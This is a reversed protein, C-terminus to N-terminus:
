ENLLGIEAYLDKYNKSYSKNSRFKKEAHSLALLWISYIEYQSMHDTQYPPIGSGWLDCNMFFKNPDHQLIKIGSSKYYLPSGPYPVMTSFHVVDILGEELLNGVYHIRELSTYLTDEPLGLMIYAQIQINYKNIIRIANEIDSSCMKKNLALLSESDNTEIGLAIQINGADKMLSIVDENVNPPFIQCWWKVDLKRKIIEECIDVSHNLDALFELDGMVFFIKGYQKRVLEIEDVVLKVSKKRYKRMKSNDAICYICKNKCGRASYIRPVIINRFKNGYLSLDIPPIINIDEILSHDNNKVITSEKIFSVGKIQSLDLKHHNNFYDLIQKVILEGEHRVIFDINQNKNLLYKDNNTPFYGGWFIYSENRLNRITETISISWKESITLVSLGYFKSKYKSIESIIDKQEIGRNEDKRLFYDILHFDIIKIRYNFLKLFSAISLIGCSAEIPLDGLLQGANKHMSDWFKKEICLSERYDTFRSFLPPQILVLDYRDCACITNGM